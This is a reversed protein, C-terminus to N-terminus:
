LVLKDVVRHLSELNTVVEVRTVHPEYDRMASDGFAWGSPLEPNLWLVRKARARIKGLAWAEPPHYNSRGDGIILVTTKSTVVSLHEEAFQRLARGYNSNAYVNVVGGLSCLDVARSLEHRAFLDTADAIDAVFVFSRVKEFLEQLTYAFQLMFRSVHRVSDSIDCLVVLRPRDVRRTRWRLAFPVGGSRLAGRLTQRVDLRGRQKKKPRLSAAARLKLALRRVEERLRRVEQESLQTFPKQSLLQSRLQEMYQLNRKQFEDRVHDRVAGRLKALNDEVHAMVQAAREEGLARALRQGVGRLSTEAQQVKMRELVQQAFFGVQLPSLLRSWDIHVGALRLLSELQGRRLGLATRATPDLRAAEDALLALVQELEDESLGQAKLAELLPAEGGRFAGPRFFYLDFLEEFPAQDERRKILTIMLAERLDAAHSLGVHEVARLAELVEATSVRVGNHRLLGVFELLRDRM